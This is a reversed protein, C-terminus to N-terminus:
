PAKKFKDADLGYTDEGVKKLIVPPTVYVEGEKYPCEVTGPNAPVHKVRLELTVINTLDIDRLGRSKFTARGAVTTGEVTVKKTTQDTSNFQTVTIEFTVGPCQQLAPHSFSGEDGKGVNINIASCGYLM